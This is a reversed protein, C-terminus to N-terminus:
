RAAAQLAAPVSAVATVAHRAQRSVYARASRLV